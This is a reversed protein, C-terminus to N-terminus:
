WWLPPPLRILPYMRTAGRDERLQRQLTDHSMTGLMDRM